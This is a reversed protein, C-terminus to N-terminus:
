FLLLESLFEILEILLEILESLFETLESSSTGNLTKRVGFLLLESLFETLEILLEM